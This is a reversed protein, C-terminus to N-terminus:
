GKAAEERQKKLAEMRKKRNEEEMKKMEEAKKRAEDAKVKLDAVRKEEAALSKKMSELEVTANKIKQKLSALGQQGQAVAQDFPGAEPVTSAEIIQGMTMLSCQVEKEKGDDLKTLKISDGAKMGGIMAEFAASSQIAQGNAKTVVDGSSLGAKQAPGNTFVSRVTVGTVADAFSAGLSPKAKQEDNLEVNYYTPAPSQYAQQSMGQPVGAPVPYPRPTQIIQGQVAGRVPVGQNYIVQANSVCSMAITIAAVAAANILLNKSKM